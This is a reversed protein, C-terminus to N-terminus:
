CCDVVTFRTKEISFYCYFASNCGCVRGYSYFFRSAGGTSGSLGKICQLGWFSGEGSSLFAFNSPSMPRM